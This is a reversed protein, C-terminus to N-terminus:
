QKCSVQVPMTERQECSAADCGASKCAEELTSFCAKAATFKCDAPDAPPADLNDGPAQPDPLPAGVPEDASSVPTNPDPAQSCAVAFVLSALAVSTRIM